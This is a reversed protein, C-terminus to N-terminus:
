SFILSAACMLCNASLHKCPTHPNRQAPVYETDWSALLDAVAAASRSLAERLAYKIFEPMELTGSGDADIADFRQRLASESHVGMERNRVMTCFEDFGLTANRDLDMADFEMVAQRVGVDFAKRSTARAIESPDPGQEHEVSGQADFALFPKPPPADLSQKRYSQGKGVPFIAFREPM